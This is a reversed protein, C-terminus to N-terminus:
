AVRDQKEARKKELANVIVTGAVDGLCNGTTTGMDFFRYFGAVIGVVETPLGFMSVVTMLKVIGGGPIGGGTSTLLTSVVVMKFITGFDFSIGNMQAIFMLVCGFCIAMGDCNLNAGLPICFDAIEEKIHFKEKCTKLSIPINAASSCSAITFTWVSSTDKLFRVPSIKAFIAVSGCYVLLVQLLVGVWFTGILGAMSSFVAFGYTGFSDAVLFLVGIPALEIIFKLYSNVLTNMAEFWGLVVKKHDENPMKLIAIGLMIAIVLTGLIDNASFTGFMSSSFIGVFFSEMDMTGAAIEQTELGGLSILAGPKLVSAIALGLVIAIVTTLIYYILIRIATRGLSSLNKQGGVAVVMICFVLPILIMKICNLWITGIFKFSGMKAGFILGLAAGIVMAILTLTTTSLRKGKVTM